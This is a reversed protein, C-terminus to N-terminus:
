DGSTGSAAKPVGVSAGPAPRAPAGPGLSLAALVPRQETNSDAVALTCLMVFASEILFHLSGQLGYTLDLGNATTQQLTCARPLVDSATDAILM